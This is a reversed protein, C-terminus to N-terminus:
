PDIRHVMYCLGAFVFPALPLTAMLMEGRVGFAPFFPFLAFFVSFALALLYGM